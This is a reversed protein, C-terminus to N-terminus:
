QSSCRRRATRTLRTAHAHLHANVRGSAPRIRGYEECFTDRGGPPSAPFGARCEWAGAPRRGRGMMVGRALGRVTVCTLGGSLGTLGSGCRGRGAGAHEPRAAPATGPWHSNGAKHQTQPPTSSPRRPLDPNEHPTPTSIQGAQVASHQGRTLPAHTQSRSIRPLDPIDRIGRSSRHIHRRKRLDPLQHLAPTTQQKTPPRGSLRCADRMTPANEIM